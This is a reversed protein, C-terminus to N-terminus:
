GGAPLSQFTPETSFGISQRACFAFQAVFPNNFALDDSGIERGTGELNEGSLNDQLYANQM